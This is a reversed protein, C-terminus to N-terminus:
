VWSKLSSIWSKNWSNSRKRYKCKLFYIHNKNQTFGLIKWYVWPNWWLFIGSMVVVKWKWRFAEETKWAREELEGTQQSAPENVAEYTLTLAPLLLASSGHHRSLICEWCCAWSVWESKLVDSRVTLCQLFCQTCCWLPSNLRGPSMFLSAVQAASGRECVRETTSCSSGDPFVLDTRVVSAHWKRNAGGNWWYVIKSASM